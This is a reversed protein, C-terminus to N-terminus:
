PLINWINQDEGGDFKFFAVGRVGLQKALQIKDNVSSADSWWVIRQPTTTAPIPGASASAAVINTMPTTTPTYIFNLEGASNRTPILGLDSALATAYGQNFTWALDYRYGQTLKVLDYEYGYTAIGIIIKKKSYLYPM